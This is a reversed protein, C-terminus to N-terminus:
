ILVKITLIVNILIYHIYGNITAYNMLYMKLGEM